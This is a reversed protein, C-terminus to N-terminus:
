LWYLVIPFVASYIFFCFWLVWWFFLHFFSFFIKFHNKKKFLFFLFSFGVAGCFALIFTSINPPFLCHSKNFFYFHFTRLTTTRPQPTQGHQHPQTATGHQKGPQPLKHRHEPQHLQIEDRQLAAWHGITPKRTDIPETHRQTTRRTKATNSVDIETAVEFHGEWCIKVAALGGSTEPIMVPAETRGQLSFGALYPRPHIKEWSGLQARQTPSAQTCKNRRM